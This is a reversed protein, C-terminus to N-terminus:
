ISPPPPSLHPKMGQSSETGKASVVVEGAARGGGVLSSILAVSSPGKPFVFLNRVRLPRPDTPSSGATVGIGITCRTVCLRVYMCTCTRQSQAKRMEQSKDFNQDVSILADISEKASSSRKNSTKSLEM